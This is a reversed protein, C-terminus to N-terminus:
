PTHSMEAVAHPAPLLAKESRRMISQVLPHWPKAATWVYQLLRAYGHLDDRHVDVFLVVRWSDAKNAAHHEFTDDFLVGEGFVWDHRQGDVVLFCEGNEPVILPLHFRWMMKSPGRHPPIVKGPQLISFLATEAHAARLLTMTVPCRSAVAEVNNGAIRLPLANWKADSIEAQEPFVEHFLAHRVEPSSWLQLFEARVTYTFQEFERLAPSLPMFPPNSTSNEVTRDIHEMIERHNVAAARALMVLTLAAAAGALVCIILLLLPRMINSLAACMRCENSGLM